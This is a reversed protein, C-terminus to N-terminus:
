SFDDLTKEASIISTTGEAGGTIKKVSIFKNTGLKDIKRQFTRYAATGGSEQYLKYLDGIKSPSNKKILELIEQVDDDLKDESKPTMYAVKEMAKQAHEVTITKSSKSEAELGAEKLMTLGTRIDKYQATKDGIAMLAASDWVGPFFAFDLRQKLIELTEQVSYEKFELQDPVLRSKIRMDLDKLWDSFNTVLLITKSLIRELLLYLFDYDEAKDIEDFCLVLAKNKSKAEIVKLLEATNKNQTFAWGLEHCIEEFIKYTTNKQWCNLYIPVIEDTTEELERFIHKLAVTKGVGPPGHIVLNRGSRKAFLPKICTAVYQQQSERFPIMKPVFEFDLALENKFLSENSSLMNKFLNGM